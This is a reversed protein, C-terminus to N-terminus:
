QVTWSKIGQEQQEGLEGLGDCLVSLGCVASQTRESRTGVTMERTGSLTFGCLVVM